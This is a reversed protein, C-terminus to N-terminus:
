LAIASTLFAASGHPVMPHLVSSLPLFQMFLDTALRVFHTVFHSLVVNQSRLVDASVCRPSPGNGPRLSRSRHVFTQLNQKFMKFLTRKTGMDETIWPLDLSRPISTRSPTMLDNSFQLHSADVDLCKLKM